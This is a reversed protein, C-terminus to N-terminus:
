RRNKMTEEDKEKSGNLFELYEILEPSLNDKKEGEIYSIYEKKLYEIETPNKGNLELLKVYKSVYLSEILQM